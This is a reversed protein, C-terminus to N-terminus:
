RIHLPIVVNLGPEAYIPPPAYVVPPPAYMVPPPAAYAVPPPAYYGYGGGGWGWYPHHERWEHGRWGHGHWGEGWGHGHWDDAFAPVSALGGLAISLGVVAVARRIFTKM